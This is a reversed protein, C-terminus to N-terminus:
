WRWPSRASFGRPTGAARRRPSRTFAAAFEDRQRPPPAAAAHGSRWGHAAALSAGHNSITGYHLVAPVHQVRPEEITTSPSAPENCVAAIDADSTDGCSRSCGFKRPERRFENATLDRDNDGPPAAAAPSAAFAAVRVIGITMRHAPFIRDFDPRTDLRLADPHCCLPSDLKKTDGRPCFRISSSFSNSGDIVRTPISTLGPRRSKSACTVSAFAAALTRPRCIMTAFAPLSRRM